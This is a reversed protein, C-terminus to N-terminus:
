SPGKLETRRPKLEVADDLFPYAGYHVRGFAEHGARYAQWTVPYGWAALTDRVHEGVRYPIVYDHVGHGLWVPVSTPLRRTAALLTELEDPLYPAYLMLGSIEGAYRMGLMLGVAAGQSFGAIIVRNHGALAIEDAVLSRLQEETALASRLSMKHLDFTDQEFWARVPESTFRKTMTAPAAPFVGRVGLGLLRMRRAVRMMDRPEQGLGHLWIITAVSNGAPARVEVRMWLGKGKM